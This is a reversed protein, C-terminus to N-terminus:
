NRKGWVKLELSNQERLNKVVSKIGKLLSIETYNFLLVKKQTVFYLILARHFGLNGM